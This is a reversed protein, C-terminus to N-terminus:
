RKEACIEIFGMKNEKTSEWDFILTTKGIAIENGKKNQM